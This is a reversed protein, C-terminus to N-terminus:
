RVCSRGRQMAPQSKFWARCTTESVMVQVMPVVGVHDYEMSWGIEAGMVHLPEQVQLCLGSAIYRGDNLGYM